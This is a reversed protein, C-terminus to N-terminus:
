MFEGVAAQQLQLNCPRDLLAYMSKYRQVEKSYLISVVVVDQGGAHSGSTGILLM